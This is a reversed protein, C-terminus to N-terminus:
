WKDIFSLNFCNNQQRLKQQSSYPPLLAAHLHPPSPVGSKVERQWSQIENYFAPIIYVLGRDKSCTVFQFTILCHVSLDTAAALVSFRCCTKLQAFRVEICLINIAKSKELIFKVASRLSWSPNYVIQGLETDGGLGQVPKEVDELLMRPWVLWIYGYFRM